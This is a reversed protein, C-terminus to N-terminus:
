LNKRLLRLAEKLLRKQVFKYDKTKKYSDPAYIKNWFYNEFIKLWTM